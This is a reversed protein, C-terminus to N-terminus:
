GFGGVVGRHAGRKVRQRAPKRLRLVDRRDLNEREAVGRVLHPHQAHGPEPLGGVEGFPQGFATAPARPQQEGLGEHRARRDHHHVAPVLM